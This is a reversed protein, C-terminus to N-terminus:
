PFNSIGTATTVVVPTKDLELRTRHIGKIIHPKPPVPETVAGGVNFLLLICTSISTLTVLSFICEGRREDDGWDSTRNKDRGRFWTLFHKHLTCLNFM